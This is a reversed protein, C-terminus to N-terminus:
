MNKLKKNGYWLQRKKNTGASKNKRRTSVSSATSTSKYSSSSLSSHMSDCSNSSNHSCVSETDDDSDYRLIREKAKDRYIQEYGGSIFQRGLTITKPLYEKLRQKVIKIGDETEVSYVINKVGFGMMTDYCDKCPSSESMGGRSNRRVVYVTVNLKKKM